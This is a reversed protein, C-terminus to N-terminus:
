AQFNKLYNMYPNQYEKSPNVKLSSTFYCMMEFINWLAACVQNTASKFILTNVIKFTEALFDIDM